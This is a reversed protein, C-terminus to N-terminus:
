PAPHETRTAIRLKASRARPNAAIEEESATLARRNMPAFPALVHGRLDREQADEFNGARLFHKVLRDELSHYALVVLRGGPRLMRASDELLDRLAGLEDNVEIRLAQFVQAQFKFERHRPAVPALARVLDATTELGGRSRAALITRAVAGPRDVEGYVALMRALSPEDAERLVDAASRVGEAPNMRMDLPADSRTSFGREAADLQHSSVGLDALIGDCQAVGHVRLFRRLHRFNAAVFTFRADDPCNAAAEPDQDFGLLRDDAGLAELIARSHGGGGFTVDVFVRPRDAPAPAGLGEVCADRLVPIHYPVASM